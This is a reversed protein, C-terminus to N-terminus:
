RPARSRPTSGGSEGNKCVDASKPPGLDARVFLVGVVRSDVRGQGCFRGREVFEHARAAELLLFRHFILVLPGRRLRHRRGLSLAM